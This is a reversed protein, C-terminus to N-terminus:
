EHYAPSHMFVISLSRFLGSRAKGAIRRSSSAPLCASLCLTFNRKQAVTCPRSVQVPHDHCKEVPVKKCHKDYGYGYCEEKYHTECETKYKTDYVTEYYTECQIILRNTVTLSRKPPKAYALYLQM